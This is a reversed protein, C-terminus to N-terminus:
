AFSVVSFLDEVEIFPKRRSGLVDIIGYVYGRCCVYFGPRNYPAQLWCMGFEEVEPALERGWPTSNLYLWWPFRAGDVPRRPVLTPM